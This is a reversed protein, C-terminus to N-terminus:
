ATAQSNVKRPCEPDIEPHHKIEGCRRCRRCIHWKICRRGGFQGEHSDAQTCKGHNFEICFVPKNKELDEFNYGAVNNQQEKSANNDVKKKEEKEIQMKEKMLINARYDYYEHLKGPLDSEWTM